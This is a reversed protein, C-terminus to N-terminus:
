QYLKVNLYLAIPPIIKFNLVSDGGGLGLFVTSETSLSVFKNFNYEIGYGLGIGIAQVDGDGPFFGPTDFSGFAWMFDTARTFSWKENLPKRKEVGVRFITNPKVADPSAQLSLGFRFARSGNYKKLYITTPGSLPVANGFPIMRSILSTMNLGVEKYKIKKPADQPATKVARREKYEVSKESNDDKFEVAKEEKKEEKKDQFIITSNGMKVTDTQAIGNNLIFFSVILISVISKM